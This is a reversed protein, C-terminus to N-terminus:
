TGISLGLLLAVGHPIAPMVEPWSVSPKTFGCSNGARGTAALVTVMGIITSICLLVGPGSGAWWWSVAEAVRERGDRENIKLLRLRADRKM